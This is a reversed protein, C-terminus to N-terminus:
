LKIKSMIMVYVNCYMKVDESQFLIRNEKGIIMTKQLNWSIYKFDNFINFLYYENGCYVVLKNYEVGQLDILAIFLQVRKLTKVGSNNGNIERQKETSGENNWIREM